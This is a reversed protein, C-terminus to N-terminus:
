LKMFRRKKVPDPTLITLRDVANVRTLISVLAVQLLSLRSHKPLSYCEHEHNDRQGM